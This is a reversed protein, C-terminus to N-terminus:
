TAVSAAMSASSIAPVSAWCASHSGLSALPSATPAFLVIRGIAYIDGSTHIYRMKGFNGKVNMPRKLEWSLGNAGSAGFGAFAPMDIRTHAWAVDPDTADVDCNNEAAWAMASEFAASDDTVNDGRASFQKVSV